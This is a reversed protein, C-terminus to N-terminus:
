PLSIEVPDQNKVAEAKAAIKAPDLARLDTELETLIDALGQNLAGALETSDTGSFAFPTERRYTKQFLVPYSEIRNELLFVQVELVAKPASKNRFDGYLSTVSGELAFDATVISGEEMVNSFVGSARLWQRIQQTVAPGPPTFFLNYYDSEFEHEGLRYVLERAQFGPSIDFSRVKLVSKPSAPALTEPRKANLAYYRKEPAPLHPLSCGALFLPCLLLACLLLTFFRAAPMGRRLRGFGPSKSDPRASQPRISRPFATGARRVMARLLVGHKKMFAM